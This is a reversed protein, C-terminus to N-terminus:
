VTGREKIATRRSRLSTYMGCARTRGAARMVASEAGILPTRHRDYHVGVPDVPRQGADSVLDDLAVPGDLVEGEHADAFAAHVQRLAQALAQVRDGALRQRGAREVDREIAVVQHAM